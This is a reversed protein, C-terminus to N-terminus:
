RLGAFPAGAAHARGPAGDRLRLPEGGLRETFADKRAQEAAVKDAARQRDADEM